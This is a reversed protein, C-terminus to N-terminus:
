PVLKVSMLWDMLLAVVMTEKSVEETGPVDSNPWATWNVATTVTVDPAPWGIVPVTMKLSPAVVSGPVTVKVGPGPAFSAVYVSVIEEKDTFM